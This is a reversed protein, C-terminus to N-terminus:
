NYICLVDDNYRFIQLISVHCVLAACFSVFMSQLYFAYVFGNSVVGEFYLEHSLSWPYLYFHFCASLFLLACIAFILSFLMRFTKMYMENEHEIESIIKEQEESDLIDTEEIANSAPFNKRQTAM